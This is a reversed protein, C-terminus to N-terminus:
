NDTTPDHPPAASTLSVESLAVSRHLCVQAQNGGGAATAAHQASGLERHRQLICCAPPGACVTHRQPPHACGQGQSCAACVPVPRVFWVLWERICCPWGGQSAEACNNYLLILVSRLRNVVPENQSHSRNGSDALAETLLAELTLLLPHPAQGQGRPAQARGPSPDRDM